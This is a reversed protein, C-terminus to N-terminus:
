ASLRAEFRIGDCLTTVVNDTLEQEPILEHMVLARSTQDLRGLSNQYAYVAKQEADQLLALLELETCKAGDLKPFTFGGLEAGAAGNSTGIQRLRRRLKRVRKTHEDALQSLEFTIESSPLLRAAREYSEVASTEGNLLAILILVASKEIQVSSKDGM